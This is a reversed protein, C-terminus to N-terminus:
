WEIVGLGQGLKFEYYNRGKKYKEFVDKKDTQTGSIFLYGGDKLFRVAEAYEVSLLNKESFHLWDVSNPVLKEWTTEESFKQYTANTASLSTEHICRAVSNLNSQLIAECVTFYFTGRKTGIELFVGDKQRLLLSFMKYLPDVLSALSCGKLWNLDPTKQNNSEQLLMELESGVSIKLTELKRSLQETKIAKTFSSPKDQNPHINEMQPSWQMWVKDYWSNKLDEAHSFTTIKRFMKEDSRVYSLHHCILEDPSFTHWTHNHQVILARAKSFYASGDTKTFSPLAEVLNAIAWNRTKWYVQHPSLYVSHKDKKIKEIQQHLDTHNYMEDDDIIFCWDIGGERLHQLGFNRQDEETKWSKSVIEIKKLPDYMNVITQYTNMLGANNLSGNWPHFNLLFLIKDVCYYCRRVSETLYGSDEYVVYVAAVKSM